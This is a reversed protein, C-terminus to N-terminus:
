SRFRSARDLIKHTPATSSVFELVVVRTLLALLVELAILNITALKCIVAILMEEAFELILILEMLAFDKNVLSEALLNLAFTKLPEALSFEEMPEATKILSTKSQHFELPPDLPLHKTILLTSV